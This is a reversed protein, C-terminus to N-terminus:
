GVASPGTGDGSVMRSFDGPLQSLVDGFEKQSVTTRLTRFVAPIGGTVENQTLGTHKSVREVFEDVGFREAPKSRRGLSQQLEQPLEVALQRIEGASLREALTGLTARTLDASEQRSLGTQDAVSHVFEKFEV